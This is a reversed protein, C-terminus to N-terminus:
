IKGISEAYQKQGLLQKSRKTAGNGKVEIIATKTSIDIERRKGLAKDYVNHNVNTVSNPFQREIAIFAEPLFKDKSHLAREILQQHIRERREAKKESKSKPAEPMGKSLLEFTSMSSDVKSGAM